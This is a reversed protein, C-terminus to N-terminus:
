DTIPVDDFPSSFPTFYNVKKVEAPPAPYKAWWTYSAGKKVTVAYDGGTHPALPTKESDRLVFYKKTGATVYYPNYNNSNVLQIYQDKDGTNRLRIRVTLVGDKRRCEILEATIGPFNTEQTQIPATQALAPPVLGANPAALGLMGAIFFPVLPTRLPNM